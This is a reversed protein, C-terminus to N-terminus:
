YPSQITWSPTYEVPFQLRNADESARNGNPGQLGLRAYEGSWYTPVTSRNAKLFANHVRQDTALDPADKPRSATVIPFNGSCADQVATAGSDWKFTVPMVASCRMTRTAPDSTVILGAPMNEQLALPTRGLVVGNRIVLAGLPSSTYQMLAMEAPRTIPAPTPQSACGALTLTAIGTACILLRM